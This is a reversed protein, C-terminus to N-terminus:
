KIEHLCGFKKFQNIESKTLEEVIAYDADAEQGKFLGADIAKDIADWEEFNGCVAFSYGNKGPVNISFYNTKM